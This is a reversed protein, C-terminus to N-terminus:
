RLPRSRATSSFPSRVQREGQPMVLRGALVTGHSKFTAEKVDLAVRQGTVGDFSIKGTGCPSFSIAVGDPRDTWGYTSNWVGDASLRMKGTAGDFRRWRLAHDDSPSVDVLAGDALRYTGTHCDPTDAAWVGSSMALLASLGVCYRICCSMSAVLREM